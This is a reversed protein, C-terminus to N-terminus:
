MVLYKRIRVGPGLFGASSLKFLDQLKYIYVFSVYCKGSSPHRWWEHLKKQLLFFLLKTRWKHQNLFFYIWFYHKSLYIQKNSYTYMSSYVKFLGLTYQKGEESWFHMQVVFFHTHNPFSKGLINCVGNIIKHNTQNM